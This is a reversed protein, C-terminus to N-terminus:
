RMQEKFIQGLDQLIDDPQMYYQSLRQACRDAALGHLYVACVAGEFPSMGQSILSALIGTLVDGSGAKALGPNGTQNVAVFGEPSAIVTNPGKLVVVAQYEKAFNQAYVLPAKAIDAAKCKCLSAMEGMHPTLIVPSQHEQLITIDKCLNNIGDADIIVPCKAHALVNKLVTRQTEGQGLGCGIAVASAGGLIPRVDLDSNLFKFTSQVLQGALVPYVEKPAVTVVYGAGSRLAGKGSLVAAGAMGMSGAFNILKGTTTKHADQAKQPIKPFVYEQDPVFFLPEINERAQPAIGIDRLVVHGLNALQKPLLHAPKLIDFVITFDAVVADESIEGTDCNVGSPVDLAFVAAIASNILLAAQTHKSDLRGHFGSGYMADVVVDVQEMCEMIIPGDQEFDLFTLGMEDALHYMIQAEQTKPEGDTLIIAVRAGQEAMKRAVVLGDGGNNGKGCFVACNLDQANKLIEVMYAAAQSGANEMMQLYTTGYNTANREIEKMQQSTVIM